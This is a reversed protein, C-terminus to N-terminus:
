GQAHRRAACGRSMRRQTHKRHMELEYLLDDHMDEGALFAETVSVLRGLAIFLQIAVRHQNSAVAALHKAKCEAFVGRRGRIAALLYPPCFLFECRESTLAKM